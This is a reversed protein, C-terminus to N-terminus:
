SFYFLPFEKIRETIPAVQVKPALKSFIRSFIMSQQLYQTYNDDM